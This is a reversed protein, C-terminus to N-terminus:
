RGNAKLWGFVAEDIIRVRDLDVARVQEGGSELAEAENADFWLTNSRKIAEWADDFQDRDYHARAKDFLIISMPLGRKYAAGPLSEMAKDYLAFDEHGNGLSVKLNAFGNLINARDQPLLRAMFGPNDLADQLIEIAEGSRDLRQLMGAYNLLITLAYNSAYNEIDMNQYVEVLLADSLENQGLQSMMIVQQLQMFALADARHWPSLRYLGISQRL